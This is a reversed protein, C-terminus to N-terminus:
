QITYSDVTYKDKSIFTIKVTFTNKLTAGFSNEADVWGVVTWTNNLCTTDHENSKCFKASALSKLHEKIVKQAIVQADFRDHGYADTLKSSSNSSKGSTSALIAIIIGV